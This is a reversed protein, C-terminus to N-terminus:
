CYRDHGTGTDSLIAVIGAICVYVFQAYEYPTPELQLYHINAEMDRPIRLPHRKGVPLAARAITMQGWGPEIQYGIALHLKPLIIYM